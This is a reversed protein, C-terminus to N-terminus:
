NSGSCSTCGSDCRFMRLPRRKRESGRTQVLSDKALSQRSMGMRGRRLRTIMYSYTDMGGFFKFIRRLVGNFILARGQLLTQTGARPRGRINSRSSAGYRVDDSVAGCRYFFTIGIFEACKETWQGRVIPLLIIASTPRACSKPSCCPLCRLLFRTCWIQSGM